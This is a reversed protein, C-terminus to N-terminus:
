IHGWRNEPARALRAARRAAQVFGVLGHLQLDRLLVDALLPVEDVQAWTSLLRSKSKRASTTGSGDFLNEVAFLKMSGRRCPRRKWHRARRSPQAAAPSPWGRRRRGGRTSDWDKASRFRRRTSWDVKPLSGSTTGGNVLHEECGPGGVLVVGARQAQLREGINGAAVVARADFRLSFLPQPWHCRASWSADAQIPADGGSGAERALIRRFDCSTRTAAVVGSLRSSKKWWTGYVYLNCEPLVTM